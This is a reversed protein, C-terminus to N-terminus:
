RDRYHGILIYQLEGTGGSGGANPYKIVVNTGPEFVFGQGPASSQLSSFTYNTNGSVLLLNPVRLSETGTSDRQLLTWAYNNGAVLGVWVDNVVLYKGAPVTAVVVSSGTSIVGTTGAISLLDDARPCFWPTAAHVGIFVGAALTLPLAVALAKM